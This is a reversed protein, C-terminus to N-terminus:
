GHRVIRSMFPAGKRHAFGVLRMVRPLDHVTPDGNFRRALAKQAPAFQALPLGTVPWYAHFRGPSSEVVIRPPLRCDLVPALAAGDLDVFLARVRVIHEGRRGLGNTQNIVAFVGAGAASWATLRRAHDELAGHCVKALHGRKLESDDFTQFTWSEAAPDLLRLFTAAQALDPEMAGM